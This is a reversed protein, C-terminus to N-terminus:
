YLNKGVRCCLCRIFTQPKETHKMISKTCDNCIFSAVCTGCEFGAYEHEELCVCCKFKEEIHASLIDITETVETM